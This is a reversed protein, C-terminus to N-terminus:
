GVQNTTSLSFANHEMDVLISEYGAAKALGVIEISTCLKVSMSSGVEDRDLREKLRNPVAIATKEHHAMAFCSTSRIPTSPLPPLSSGRRCFAQLQLPASRPLSSAYFRMRTRYQYCHADQGLQPQTAAPRAPLSLAALDGRVRDGDERDDESLQGPDGNGM